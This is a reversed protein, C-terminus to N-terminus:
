LDEIQEIVNRLTDGPNEPAWKQGFWSITKNKFFPITGIGGRRFQSEIMLHNTIVLRADLLGDRLTRLVDRQRDCDFSTTDIRRVLEDIVDVADGRKCERLLRDLLEKLDFFGMQQYVATPM